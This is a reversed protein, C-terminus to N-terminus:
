MNCGHLKKHQWGLRQSGLSTATNGIKGLMSGTEDTGEPQCVLQWLEAPMAATLAAAMGSQKV